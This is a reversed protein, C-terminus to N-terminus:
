CKNKLVKLELAENIIKLKFTSFMKQKVFMIDRSFL